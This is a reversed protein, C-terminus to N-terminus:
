CQEIAISYQAPVSDDADVISVIRPQSNNSDTAKEPPTGSQLSIHSVILILSKIPKLNTCDVVHIDTFRTTNAIYVPAYAPNLSLPHQVRAFFKQWAWKVKSM